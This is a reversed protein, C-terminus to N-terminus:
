VKVKSLINVLTYQFSSQGEAPNPLVEIKVTVDYVYGAEYNFGEIPEPLMEWSDKGISAGKQVMFCTTNGQTGDCDVQEGIRMNIVEQKKATVATTTDKGVASILTLSLCTLLAFLIKMRQKNNFTYGPNAPVTTTFILSLLLEYGNYYYSM